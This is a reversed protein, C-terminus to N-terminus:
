EGDSGRALSLARQAADAASAVDDWEAWHGSGRDDGEKIIFRMVRECRALVAEANEARQKWRLGSQFLRDIAAEAPAIDEPDISM